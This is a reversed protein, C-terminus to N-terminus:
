EEPSLEKGETYAIFARRPIKVRSRIITVPFGLLSSDTHAAVRIYHPNCGIVRAATNPTIYEDPMQRLDDLTLRLM